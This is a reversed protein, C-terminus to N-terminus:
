GKLNKLKESAIYLKNNMGQELAHLFISKNKIDRREPIVTDALVGLLTTDEPTENIIKNLLDFQGVLEIKEESTIESNKIQKILSLNLRELRLKDGDYTKQGTTNTGGVLEFINKSIVKFVYYMLYTVVSTVIAIYSSLTIMAVFSLYLLSIGGIFSSEMKLSELKVRKLATALEVSLGFKSAFVDALIESDKSNSINNFNFINETKNMVVDVAKTALSKSTTIETNDKSLKVIVDELNDKRVGSIFSEMVTTTDMLTRYSYLIHTGIHGLEHVLVAVLETATLKYTNILALFNIQVYFKVRPDINKFMINKTDVEIGKGYSLSMAAFSDKIEGALRYLDNNVDLVEDNGNIDKQNSSAMRRLNKIVHDYNKFLINNKNPTVTNVGYLGYSNNVHKTRLGFRDYIIEDIEDVAEKISSNKLLKSGDGIKKKKILGILDEFKLVLEMIRKDKLQPKFAELGATGISVSLKKYSM